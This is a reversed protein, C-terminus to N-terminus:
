NWMFNRGHYKLNVPCIEFERGNYIEGIRDVCLALKVDHRFKYFADLINHIEKVLRLKEFSYEAMLIVVPKRNMMELVLLVAISTKSRLKFRRGM